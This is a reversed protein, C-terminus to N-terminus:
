QPTPCKQESFRQSLAAMRQIDIGQMSGVVQAAARDTRDRNKQAEAATAPAANANGSLADRQLAQANAAFTPDLQQSMLRGAMSMETLMQECTLTNVAQKTPDPAANMRKEADLLLARDKEAQTQQAIAPLSVLCALTVVAFSIRFM